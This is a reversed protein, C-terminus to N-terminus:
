KRGARNLKDFIKNHDERNNKELKKFDEDLNKMETELETLRNGHKTCEEEKGPVLQVGPNDPEPADAKKKSNRRDLIKLALLTASGMLSAGIAIWQVIEEAGM